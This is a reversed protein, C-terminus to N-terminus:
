YGFMRVNPNILSIIFPINSESVYVMECQSMACCERLIDSGLKYGVTKIAPMSHHADTPTRDIGTLYKVNAGFCQKAKDIYSEVDSMVFVNARPASLHSALRKLREDISAQSEYEPHHAKKQAIGRVHVGVESKEISPKFCDRVRFRQRFYDILRKNSAKKIPPIATTDLGDVESIVTSKVFYIQKPKSATSSPQILNEFYLFFSNNYEPQHYKFHDSNHSFHPLVTLKPNLENLFCANQAFVSLASGFGYPWNILYILTSEDANAIDHKAILDHVSDFVHNTGVPMNEIDTLEPLAMALDFREVRYCHPKLWSLLVLLVILALLTLWNM